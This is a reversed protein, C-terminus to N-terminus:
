SLLYRFLYIFKKRWNLRFFQSLKSSLSDFYNDSDNVPMQYLFLYLIKEFMFFIIQNTVVIWYNHEIKDLIQIDSDTLYRSPLPLWDVFSLVFWYMVYIFFVSKICDCTIYWYKLVFLWYFRFRSVIIFVSNFRLIHTLIFAYIIYMKNVNLNWIERITYVCFNMLTRKKKQSMALKWQFVEMFQRM